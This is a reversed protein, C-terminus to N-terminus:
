IENPTKEIKKVILVENGLANFLLRDSLSWMLPLGRGDEACTSAEAAEPCLRRISPIARRVDFGAGSDRIRMVLRSGFRNIKIRIMAGGGQDASRLANNIAENLAVEIFIARGGVIGGLLDRLRRRLYKVEEPKSLEYVLPWRVAGQIRLCLASADDHGGGPPVAMRMFTQMHELDHLQLPVQRMMVDMLGDTAFYFVDGAQVPVTQEIFDPKDDVGLLSGPARVLGQLTRSSAMFYNIGASIYRLTMRTLDFEFCIAAAFLGEGFYSQVQRNVLMLTKKLSLQEDMAQHFLVNLAATQLATGIGHGMVDILYGQLVTGSRSWGYGYFDGSVEHYPQYFTRIEVGASLLDPVLLSRQVMAANRLEAELQKQMKRVETIDRFSAMLLQRDGLGIQALTREVELSSGDKRRLRRVEPQSRLVSSCFNQEFRRDVGEQSDLTVDYATLGILEDRSDYGLFQACRRNAAVIKRTKIEFLALADSSQEFIARAWAESRQLNEFLTLNDLSVAVLQAVREVFKVTEPEFAKVKDLYTLGLVGVVADDGHRVPVALISTFQSFMADPDRKEWSRYDKVVLTEGTEWVTGVVAEGLGYSQVDVPLSAHVGWGFRRVMRQNEADLLFLFSHPIGAIDSLLRMLSQMLDQRDMRNLMGLSAEHLLQYYHNQLTLKQGDDGATAPPEIQQPSALRCARILWILLLIEGAAAALIWGQFTQSFFAAATGLNLAGLVVTVIMCANGDFRNRGMGPQDVTFNKSEAM